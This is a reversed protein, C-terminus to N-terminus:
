RWRWCRKICLKVDLTILKWVFICLATINYVALCVDDYYVCRLYSTLSFSSTHCTVLTLMAMILNKQEWLWIVSKKHGILANWKKLDWQFLSRLFSSFCRLSSFFEHFAKLCFLCFGWIHTFNIYYFHQSYIRLM